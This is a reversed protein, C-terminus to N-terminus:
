RYYHQFFLNRWDIFNFVYFWRFMMNHLGCARLFPEPLAPLGYQTASGWIGLSPWGCHYRISYLQHRKLTDTTQLHNANKASLARLYHQFFLNRWDIFNFVYFWRFMMNHLGCARLLPEPLAPLCYHTASGWIGLFPWGCHYHISYRQHRKITDTTQLHNANKASLARLYHQFFILQTLRYFQICSDVQFLRKKSFYTGCLYKWRPYFHRITSKWTSEYMSDDQVDYQAFWLCALIVRTIGPPWQTHSVGMDRPLTLWLSLPNFVPPPTKAHGHNTFSQCEKRIIGKFLTSFFLNCWGIFNFVHTWKFFDKKSFYTGCLYKWRPYFTAFPVKELPSMCLIVRFM